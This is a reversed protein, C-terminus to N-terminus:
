KVSNREGPLFDGAKWGLLAAWFAVAAGHNGTSSAVVKRVGGGQEPVSLAYIAGRVKFSGTPMESELKLFVKQKSNVELSAARVLRTRPLYRSLVERAESFRRLDM